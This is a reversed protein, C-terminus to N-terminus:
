FERAMNKQAGQVGVITETTMYLLHFRNYHDVNANNTIGHKKPLVFM